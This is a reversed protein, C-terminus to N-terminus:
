WRKNLSLGWFGKGIVPAVSAGHRPSTFYFSSIAGLAAGAVVDEIFHRDSYVRSFGVFSAGLYAPIAIKWGYRKHIFVAGQFTVSTHGSPFSNNDSGDPRKKSVIFKTALTLGLNTFFSKYFQHRAAPDHFYYTSGFATTPIAILLIDGATETKGKARATEVTPGVLFFVCLGATIIKKNM